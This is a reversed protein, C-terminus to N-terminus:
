ILINVSRYDKSTPPVIELFSNVHQLMFDVESLSFGASTVSSFILPQATKLLELTQEESSLFTIRLDDSSYNLRLWLEGLTSTQIRLALTRWPDLDRSQQYAEDFIYLEGHRGQNHWWLINVLPYNPPPTGKNIHLLAPAVEEPQALGLLFRTVAKITLKEEPIDAAKTWGRLSLYALQKEKPMSKAEQVMRSVEDGDIPQLWSLLAKAAATSLPSAPISLQNLAQELPAQSQQAAAEVPIVRLLLTSNDAQEARLNLVQGLELALQGTGRILMGGIRLIVSDQSIDVVTGRYINGPHLQVSVSTNTQSSPSLSVVPIRM